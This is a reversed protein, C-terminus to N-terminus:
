AKRMCLILLLHCSIESFKYDGTAELTPSVFQYENGLVIKVMVREYGNEIAWDLM